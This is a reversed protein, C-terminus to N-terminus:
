AALVGDTLYRRTVVTHAIKLTDAFAFQHSQLIVRQPKLLGSASIV